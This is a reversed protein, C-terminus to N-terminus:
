RAPQALDSMNGVLFSMNEVTKQCCSLYIQFYILYRFFHKLTKGQKFTVEAVLCYSRLIPWRFCLHLIKKNWLFINWEWSIWIETYVMGHNVLDTVDCHTNACSVLDMKSYINPVVVWLTVLNPWNISILLLSLKWYDKSCDPPSPCSELDKKTYCGAEIIYQFVM